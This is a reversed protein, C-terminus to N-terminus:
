EQRHMLDPLQRGSLAKERHLNFIFGPSGDDGHLLTTGMASPDAAWRHDGLVIL